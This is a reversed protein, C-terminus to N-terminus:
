TQDSTIKIQLLFLIVVSAFPTFFDVSVNVTQLPVIKCKVYIFIIVSIDLIIGAM